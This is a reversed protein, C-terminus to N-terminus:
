EVREKHPEVAKALLDVFGKANDKGLNSDLWDQARRAATNVADFRQKFARQESDLREQIANLGIKIRLASYWREKMRGVVILGQDTGAQCFQIEERLEFVSEARILDLQLDDSTMDEVASLEGTEVVHIEKKRDPRFTVSCDKVRMEFGARLTAALANVQSEAATIKAKYQSKVAEFEDEILTKDALAKVMQDGLDLRESPAFNHKVSRRIIIPKETPKTDGNQKETM